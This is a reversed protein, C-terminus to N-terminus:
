NGGRAASWPLNVGVESGSKVGDPRGIALAQEKEPAGIGSRGRRCSGIPPHRREIAIMRCIGACPAGKVRGPDRSWRLVTDRAIPLAITKEKGDRFSGGAFHCAR